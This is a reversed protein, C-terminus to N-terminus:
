KPQENKEGKPLFINSKDGDNRTYKTPLSPAKVETAPNPATCVSVQNEHKM